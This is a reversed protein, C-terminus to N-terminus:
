GGADDRCQEESAQAHWSKSPPEAAPPPTVVAASVFPVATAAPPDSHDHSLGKTETKFVKMAEGLSKAAGPLRKAGFLVMFVILLIIIHWPALADGM